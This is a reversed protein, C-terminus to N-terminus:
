GDAARGLGGRPHGEVTPRADGGSTSCRPGFARADDLGGPVRMWLDVPGRSGFVLELLIPAHGGLLQLVAVGGVRDEGVGAGGACGAVLGLDVQVLGGDGPGDHVGREVVALRRHQRAGVHHDLEGAEPRRLDALERDDLVAGREPERAVGRDAVDGLADLDAVAEGAQVGLDDRAPHRHPPGAPRRPWGRGQRHLTSREDVLVEGGDGRGQGVGPDVAEDLLGAGPEVGLFGLFTPQDRGLGALEVDVEAGGGGTALLDVAGDVDGAAEVESIGEVELVGDGALGAVEGEGAGVLGEVYAAGLGDADQGAGLGGEVEGAVADPPRLVVCRAPARM